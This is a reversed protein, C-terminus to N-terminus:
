TTNTLSIGYVNEISNFIGRIDYIGSDYAVQGKIQELTPYLRFSTVNENIKFLLSKIQVDVVDKALASTFPIKITTSNTLVYSQQNDLFSINVGNFVLNFNAFKGGGVTACSFNFQNVQNGNLTLIKSSDMLNVGFMPSRLTVENAQVLLISLIIVVIFYIVLNRKVKYKKLSPFLSVTLLFGLVCITFAILYPIAFVSSDVIAWSIPLTM